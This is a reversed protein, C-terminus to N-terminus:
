GEADRHPDGHGVDVTFSATRVVGGVQFDFFLRYRGASPVELAFPVEGRGGGDEPHVHLYALDGERLAVLHGDAGLYPELEAPGDGDRVRVTVSSAGGPELHDHLEVEFGDVADSTAAQPRAPPVYSGPVIVDVGLTLSPGDTPTFDAFVRHAGPALEPIDISWWGSGDREPHLHAYRDLDRSVVILHLEKDHEVDFRTVAAGDDDTIRFRFANTGAQLVTSEAELTYGADSVALGPLASPEADGDPHGGHVEDGSDESDGPDPGVTAGLAAGGGLVLALLLGYAGLRTAANM